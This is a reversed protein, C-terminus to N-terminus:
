IGKYLYKKFTQVKISSTNSTKTLYLEGLLLGLVLFAIKVASKNIDRSSFEFNEYIKKLDSSVDNKQISIKAYLWNFLTFYTARLLQENSRTSVGNPLLNLLRDLYTLNIDETQIDKKLLNEYMTDPINKHVYQHNKMLSLAHTKVITILSCIISPFENGIYKLYTNSFMHMRPGLIGYLEIKDVFFRKLFYYPPRNHSHIIAESGFHGIKLRLALERQSLEIDEAYLIKNSYGIKKIVKAKHLTFVDDIVYYKRKDSIQYLLDMQKIVTNSPAGYVYQHHAFINWAAFLDSNRYPIQRVSVASCGNQELFNITNYLLYPSSPIADAVTNVIYEGSASSIGVNRTKGHKFESKKVRIIKARYKKAIALTNDTSGSDVIIIEINKILKQAKYLRLAQDFMSLTNCTHIVVSVTQNIFAHTKNTIYQNNSIPKKSIQGYIIIKNFVSKIWYIVLNRALIIKARYISLYQFFYYIM